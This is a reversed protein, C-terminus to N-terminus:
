FFITCEDREHRTRFYSIIILLLLILLVFTISSGVIVTPFLWINDDM